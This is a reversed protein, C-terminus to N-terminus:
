SDLRKFVFADDDADNIFDVYPDDIWSPIHHLTDEWEGEQQFVLSELENLAGILEIINPLDQIEESTKPPQRRM